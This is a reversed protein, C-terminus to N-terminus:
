ISYSGMFTLAKQHLILLAGFYSNCIATRNSNPDRRFIGMSYNNLITAMLHNDKTVIIQLPAELPDISSVEQFIREQTEEILTEKLKKLLGTRDTGKKKVKKVYAAVKETFTLKEPETKGEKPSPHVKNFDQYNSQNKRVISNPGHSETSNNLLKRSEM